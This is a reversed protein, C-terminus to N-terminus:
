GTQYLCILKQKVTTEGENHFKDTLIITNETLQQVQRTANKKQMLVQDEPTFDTCWEYTKRAPQNFRQTFKYHVPQPM